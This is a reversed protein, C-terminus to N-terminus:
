TQMRKCIKCTIDKVVRTTLTTERYWNPRCLPASKWGFIRYHVIKKKM